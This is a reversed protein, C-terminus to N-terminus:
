DLLEDTVDESSILSTASRDVRIIRDAKACGRRGSATVVCTRARRLIPDGEVDVGREHVFCQLADMVTDATHDDFFMTPKHIVLVEPSAILARALHLSAKQTTSLHEDWNRELDSEVNEMTTESVRLRRCVKNVRDLRGLEDSRDLGYTLNSMLSARFFLPHQVIHFVRLHPPVFFEGEDPLLVGGLLKLFTSKGHAKTGVVVALEGQMIDVSCNRIGHIECLGFIRSDIVYSKTGPDSCIQHASGKYEFCVNRFSIPLLDVGYVSEGADRRAQIVDRMQARSREALDLQNLTMQRRQAMDTPLNMFWVILELAPFSEEIILVLNYVAAMSEAVTRYIDISNLFAGVTLGQGHIIENGAFLVYGGVIVAELWPCFQYNVEHIVNSKNVEQNLLRIQGEVKDMINARRQYDTIMRVNHTVMEVHKALRQEQMMAELRQRHASKRRFYLFWFMCVPFLIIPVVSVLAPVTYGRRVCLLVQYAFLLVMKTVQKAILFLSMYGNHVIDPSHHTVSFILESHSCETRVQEGYNLFKRVLNSQLKLRCMGGVRSETRKVMCACVLSRPLIILSTAIVLALSRSMGLLMPDDSAEMNFVIDILYLKIMIFLLDNLNHLQDFLMVRRSAKGILPDSFCSIVYEMFLRAKPVAALNGSLMVEKYTNTPFADDDLIKVRCRALSVCLHANVPQSLEMCFELTSDWREDNLIPVSVKKNLENPQFTLTGETRSYKVGAVASADETGYNVSCSQSADGIRLIDVNVVGAGNGEVAYFVTTGFMVVCPCIKHGCPDPLTADIPLQKSTLSSDASEHQLSLENEEVAEGGTPQPALASDSVPAIDCVPEVAPRVESALEGAGVQRLFMDAGSFTALSESPHQAFDLLCARLPPKAGLLTEVIVKLALLDYTELLWHAVYNEDEALKASKWPKSLKRKEAIGVATISSKVAEQETSVSCCRSVM